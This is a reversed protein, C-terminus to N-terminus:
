TNKMKQAKWFCAKTQKFLRHPCTGLCGLMAQKTIYLLGSTTEEWRTEPQDQSRTVVASVTGPTHNRVTAPSQRTAAKPGRSQPLAAALHFPSARSTLLGPERSVARPHTNLKSVAGGARPLAETVCGQGPGSGPGGLENFDDQRHIIILDEATFLSCHPM